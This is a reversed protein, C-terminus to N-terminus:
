IWSVQTTGCSRVCCGPVAALGPAHARLLQGDGSCGQPKHRYYCICTNVKGESLLVPRLNITAMWLSLHSSFNSKSMFSCITLIGNIVTDCRKGDETADDAHEFLRETLESDAALRRLFARGLQSVYTNDYTNYYDTGSCFQWCDMVAEFSSHFVDTMDLSMDPMHGLLLKHLLQMVTEWLEKGRWPGLKIKQVPGMMWHLVAALQAVMTQTQAWTAHTPTPWKEQCLQKAPVQYKGSNALETLVADYDEPRQQKQESTSALDRQLGSQADVSVSSAVASGPETGVLLATASAATLPRFSDVELTGAAEALPPVPSSSGTADSKSAMDGGEDPLLQFYDEFDDHCPLDVQKSLSVFVAKGVAPLLHVNYVVPLEEPRKGLYKLLVSATNNLDQFQDPLAPPSLGIALQGFARWAACWAFHKSLVMQPVYQACQLM